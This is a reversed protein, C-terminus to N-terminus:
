KEPEILSIPDSSGKASFTIPVLWVLSRIRCLSSPESCVLTQLSLKLEIKEGDQPVNALPVNIKFKTKPPSVKEGAPSVDSSLVGEKDPTEVLYTM